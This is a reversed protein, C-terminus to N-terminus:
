AEGTGTPTFRKDIDDKSQAVFQSCETLINEKEFKVVDFQKVKEGM